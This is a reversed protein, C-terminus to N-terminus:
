RIRRGALFEIFAIGAALYLPATVFYALPAPLGLNMLAQPLLFVMLIIDRLTGLASYVNGVIGDGLQDREVEQERLDETTENVDDEIGVEPEDVMGGLGVAQVVIASAALCVVFGAIHRVGLM